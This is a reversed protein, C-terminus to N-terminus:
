VAPLNYDPLTENKLNLSALTQLLKFEELVTDGLFSMVIEEKSDLINRFFYKKGLAKIPSNNNLDFGNVAYLEIKNVISITKLFIYAIKIAMYSGPGNVYLIAKIDYLSLIEDFLFPLIDSTKGEKSITDILIDNKYVGILIPNAISIVLIKINSQQM